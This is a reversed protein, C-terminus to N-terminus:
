LLNKIDENIIERRRLMVRAGPDPYMDTDITFNKPRQQGNPFMWDYKLLLHAIVMKMEDSTYFRGPCAHKGYGFAMNSSDAM